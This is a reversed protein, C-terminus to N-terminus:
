IYRSFEIVFDYAVIPIYKVKKSKLLFRSTYNLDEATSKDVFRISNDYVIERKFLYHWVSYSFQRKKMYYVGNELSDSQESLALKGSYNKDWSEDYKFNFILADLNSQKADRYLKELLEPDDEIYDDGDIYWIYEGKARDQGFNRASSLGGDKKKLYSFRKDNTEIIFNKVYHATDDTSGDDVILFEVDEMKQNSLSKLCCLIYDQVNYAAVILSLKMKVEM